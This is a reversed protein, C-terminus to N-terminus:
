PSRVAPTTDQEPEAGSAPNWGAHDAGRVIRFPEGGVARSREERM